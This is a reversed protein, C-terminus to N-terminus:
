ITSFDLSSERVQIAAVVYWPARTKNEVLKYKKKNGLIKGCTNAVEVHKNPNVTCKDYLYAHEQLLYDKDREAHDTTYHDSPPLYTPRNM